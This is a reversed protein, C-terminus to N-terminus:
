GETGWSELAKAAADQEAEKKSRGSGEAVVAGEIELAVLFIKEHEPGQTSVLSYRPTTHLSEQVREQLLTKHDKDPPSLSDQDPLPGVLRELIAEVATLGGDM